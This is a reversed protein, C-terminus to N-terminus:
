KRHSCQMGGGLGGGGGRGGYRQLLISLFRAVDHCCFIVCLVQVNLLDPWLSVDRPWCIPWLSVNVYRCLMINYKFIILSCLMFSGSWSDPLWVTRVTCWDWLIVHCKLRWVTVDTCDFGVCLTQLYIRSLFIWWYSLFVTYCSISLMTCRALIAYCVVLM